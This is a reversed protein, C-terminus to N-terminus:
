IVISYTIKEYLIWAFWTQVQKTVCNYMTLQLIRLGFSGSNYLNIVWNQLLVSLTCWICIGMHLRLVCVLDSALGHTTLFILRCFKTKIKLFNQKTQLLIIYSLSLMTIYQLTEQIIMIYIKQSIFWEYVACFIISPWMCGAYWSNIVVAKSCIRIFM